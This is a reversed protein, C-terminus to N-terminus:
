RAVSRPMHNNKGYTSKGSHEQDKEETQPATNAIENCFPCINIIRPRDSNFDLMRLSHTFNKGCHGCKFLGPLDAPAQPSPSPTIPEPASFPKSVSPQVTQLPPPVTTSQAPSSSLPPTFAVPTRETTRTVIPAREITRSTLPIKSKPKGVAADHLLARISFLTGAITTVAIITLLVWTIRLLNWYPNAWEYSFQLGYSYLTGFVIMELMLLAYAIAATLSVIIVAFLVRKIM